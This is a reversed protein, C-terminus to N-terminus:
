FYDMVLLYNVFPCQSWKKDVLLGRAALIVFVDQFEEFSHLALWVKQKRFFHLQLTEQHGVVRWCRDLAHKLSRQGVKNLTM